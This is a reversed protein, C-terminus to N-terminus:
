IFDGSSNIVKGEKGFKEDIVIFQDPWERGPSEARCGYLYVHAAVLKVKGPQFAQTGVGISGVIVLLVQRERLSTKFLTYSGASRKGIIGVGPVPIIIIEGVM